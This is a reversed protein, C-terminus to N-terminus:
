SHFRELFHQLQPIANNEYKIALKPQQLTGPWLETSM